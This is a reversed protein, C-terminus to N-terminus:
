EFDLLYVNTFFSPRDLISLVSVLCCRVCSLSSLCLLFMVCFDVNYKSSCSSDWCFATLWPARSSYDTGTGYSHPVSQFSSFCHLCIGHLRHSESQKTPIVWNIIAIMSDGFNLNWYLRWCKARWCFEDIFLISIPHVPCQIDSLNFYTVEMYYKRLSQYYSHLFLCSITNPIIYIHLLPVMVMLYQM